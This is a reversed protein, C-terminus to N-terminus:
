IVKVIEMVLTNLAVYTISRLLDKFYGNQEKQKCEEQLLSMILNVPIHIEGSHYASRDKQKLVNKM